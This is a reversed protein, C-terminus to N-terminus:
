GRPCGTTAATAQALVGIIADLELDLDLDLSLSRLLWGGGSSGGDIILSVPRPDTEFPAEGCGEQPFSVM